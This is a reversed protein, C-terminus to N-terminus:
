RRYWNVFSLYGGLNSIFRWWSHPSRWLMTLYILLIRLSTYFRRYFDGYLQELQELTFGSPIFVFNMANMLPWDERFEGWTHIDNYLPSGPFPTFKAVNIDSLPLLLAYKVSRAITEETEGPLGMMFLGKARIGTRHIQIVKERIMELDTTSRHQALLGQDGTEIGLSIMWCGARKLLRLMETDLQEARAACNFSMKLQSGIIGEALAIVRERNLTFTDDYINVHRIGFERQLWTLLEVVYTPSNYRYSTGFVSRDCYSCKFPCGRSTIVTTHPVRPYNFIPLKYGSPFEKLKGYAPFPLDDMAIMDLRCGSFRVEERQRYLLGAIQAYNSGDSEMLQLLTQEGEGVVGFDIVPFDALLQEQLASMHVGGFVIRLARFQQKMLTAIRIGDLFSSTTTSFGVFDPRIERVLQLLLFDDGPFAYCDHITVSHGHQGLWAALSLLGLPPMINTIRTMDRQGATANEGLPHILLISAKTNNQM